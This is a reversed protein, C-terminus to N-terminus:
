RVFGSKVIDFGSLQRVYTRMMKKDAEPLVRWLSKRWDNVDTRGAEVLLSMYGSMFQRYPHEADLQGQRSQKSSMDFEVSQAIMGMIEAAQKQTLKQLMCYREAGPVPALWVTRMWENLKVTQKM